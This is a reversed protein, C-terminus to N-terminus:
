RGGPSSHRARAAASGQITRGVLAIARKAAGASASLAPRPDHWDVYDYACRRSFESLFASLAGARSPVDPHSPHALAARLWSLDGGLWRMRIGTRYGDIARLPGGRAWEYLLLPLPVGARVALELSSPLRPNIEMLASQGKADRRFEIFSCGELGLRDVLREADMTVDSPLPISERVVFSGGLPPKTREARCAFRAWFRGHAYMLAVAERDGPLWEQLAVTTGTALMRDIASLAAVRDDVVVARVRQGPGTRQVWSHMPKVVAPLGVEGIAAAADSSNRVSVGRPTRIGIEEAAALTRSKDTAAAVAANSGLALTVVEEVRTRRLTLAEISGDHVPILVGAGFRASADLVANVYADPQTEFRPVVIRARCWRSAFAPADADSGIVGIAVGAGGLQRATVLAQREGADAILADM